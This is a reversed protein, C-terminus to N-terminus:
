DQSGSPRLLELLEKHEEPSVHVPCAALSLLCVSFHGTGLHSCHTCFLVRGCSGIDGQWPQRVYAHGSDFWRLCCGSVSGCAVGLCLVPSDSVFPECFRIDLNGRPVPPFLLSDSAEEEEEEEEEEKHPERGREWCLRARELIEARQRKVREKEM